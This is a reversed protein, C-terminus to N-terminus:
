MPVWEGHEDDWYSPPVNGNPWGRLFEVRKQEKLAARMDELIQRTSDRKAQRKWLRMAHVEAAM